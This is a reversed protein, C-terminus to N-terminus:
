RQAELWLAGPSQLEVLTDYALKASLRLFQEPNANKKAAAAADATV